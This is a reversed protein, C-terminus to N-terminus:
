AAQEPTILSVGASADPAAFELRYVSGTPPYRGERISAIQM